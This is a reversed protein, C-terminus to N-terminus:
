LLLTRGLGAARSRVKDRQKYIAAEPFRSTQTAFDRARAHTKTKDGRAGASDNLKAVVDTGPSLQAVDDPESTFEPEDASEPFLPAAAATRTWPTAPTAPTASGSVGSLLSLLGPRGGSNNNIAAIGRRAEDPTAGLTSFM